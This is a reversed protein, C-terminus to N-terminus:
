GDDALPITFAPLSVTLGMLDVDVPGVVATTCGVEHVIAAPVAQRRSGVGITAGDPELLEGSVVSIACLRDDVVDFRELRVRGTMRGSRGRPSRFTGQIRAEVPLGADPAHKRPSAPQPFPIVVRM